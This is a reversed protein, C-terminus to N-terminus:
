LTEIARRQAKCGLLLHVAGGMVTCLVADKDAMRRQLHERYWLTDSHKADQRAFL